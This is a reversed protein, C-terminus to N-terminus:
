KQEYPPMKRKQGLSSSDHIDMARVVLLVELLNVQSVLHILVDVRQTNTKGKAIAKAIVM